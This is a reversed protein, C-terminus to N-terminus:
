MPVRISMVPIRRVPPPPATGCGAKSKRGSTSASARITRAELYPGITSPIVTFMGIRNDHKRRWTPVVRQVRYAHRRRWDNEGIVDLAASPAMLSNRGLLFIDPSRGTWGKRAKKRGIRRSKRSTKSVAPRSELRRNRQREFASHFRSSVSQGERSGGVIGGAVEVRVLFSWCGCPCSM